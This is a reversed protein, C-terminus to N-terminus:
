DKEEPFYKEEHILEKPFRARHLIGKANEIMKPHGCLYCATNSPDLSLADLHKRLVDEVRGTEGRWQTDDFWRSVSPIYTFWDFRAALSSLEDLYPGLDSSRSGAHLVVIHRGPDEGEEVAKQMTRVISAYPAIGTVTGAMFHWRMGSKTDLVFRGKPQRFVWLEDGPQLGFLQESLEGGPVLEIFFELRREYASSAISYPRFVFKGSRQPLGLTAYQGPVFTLPEDPEVQFIALEDSLDLREGIRAPTLKPLLAPAPRILGGPDRTQGALSGIDSVYPFEQSAPQRGAV